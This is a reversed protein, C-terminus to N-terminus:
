GSSLDSRTPICSELARPLEEAREDAARLPQGVSISQDALAHRSAQEFDGQFALNNPVVNAWEESLNLTVSYHVAHEPGATITTVEWAKAGNLERRLYM